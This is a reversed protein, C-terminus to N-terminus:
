TWEDLFIKCNIFNFIFKNFSNDIKEVNLIKSIENLNVFESIGSSDDLIQDRTSKDKLNILTQISANFGKKQRDTRVKENLIGKMSERLIFKNYGNQILNEAPISLSFEYLQSDLYPSRNEVSNDMYNLDDQNLVIPVVESFLDTQMQNRLNSNSYKLSRYNTNIYRKNMLQKFKQEGHFLNKKSPKLNNKLIDILIPNEIYKGQGQLWEKLKTKFNKKTKMEYLWRAGYDYYGSFLEDSGVGSFIVKNKSQGVKKAIM